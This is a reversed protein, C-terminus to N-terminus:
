IKFHGPTVYNESLHSRHIQCHRSYCVTVGIKSHSPSANNDSLHYCYIQSDQIVSPVEFRSIVPVPMDTQSVVATSKATAQIVFLSDSRSTIPMTSQSIVATSKATDQIVSLLESRSTIPMTSQSIAATSKATDQIVSLSDSRSTIPVSRSKQSTTLTPKVPESTSTTFQVARNRRSRLRRTSALPPDYIHRSLRPFNFASAPPSPPMGWKSRNGLYSVFGWFDLVRLSDMEWAPLPDDLCSNFIDKLAADNYDLGRSWTWFMQAFGGVGLGDQRLATLSCHRALREQMNAPPLVKISM